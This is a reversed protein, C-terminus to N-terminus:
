DDESKSEDHHEGTEADYMALHEKYIKEGEEADEMAQHYGRIWNEEAVALLFEPFEAMMTEVIMEVTVLEDKPNLKEGVYELIVNKMDTDPEVVQKLSEGVEISQNTNM